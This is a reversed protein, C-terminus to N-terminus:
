ISIGSYGPTDKGKPVRPNHTGKIIFTCLYMCAQMSVKISALQNGTFSKVMPGYEDALDKFTKIMPSALQVQKRIYWKMVGVIGMSLFYLGVLFLWLWNTLNSDCEEDIGM